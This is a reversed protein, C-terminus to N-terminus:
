LPPLVTGIADLYLEELKKTQSVEGFKSAFLKSKKGFEARLKDDGLITVIADAISKSNDKAVIGNEGNKVVETVLEDVIVFPLGAHAAENVVLGQTDTVSPFVFLDASAYAVGLYQRPLSGTFTIRDGVGSDQAEQELVAKYEFDGVYLLRANPRHKLVKKIAPILIDLNKEASLRGAYLVVEDDKGIDYKANFDSIQKASAKPLADIGTPMVTVDFWYEDRWSELQIKSKESLAIVADCRSYIMAMLSEVIESGWESVLRRPKYIKMLERVDQGKFRFANPLVFGAGVVIAPVVAPYHKIYQSLDTSHQAILAAGTKKAAYVGMLGIFSPTFFHIVDLDYSKVRRLEAAPFILSLNYEDFLANKMSRFRIIHDDSEIKKIRVGDAPCFIFVEHGMEELRKKTIDIVYVIGNVSPRYTDTFLGIRM